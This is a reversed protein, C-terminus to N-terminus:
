TKDSDVPEFEFQLLGLEGAIWVVLRGVLSLEKRMQMVEHALGPEDTILGDVGRSLMVSMMVPNNVTWVYVKLGREHASRILSPTAANSNLALFDVDLRTLDGLSATSLLGRQWSPELEAVQNVARRNLSMIMVQDSMGTDRVVEAVRPALLLQKHQGQGGYYKLEIIIGAKGDFRQLVQRLTPIRESAFEPAFWSGVDLDALDTQTAHWARLPNGAVKMFDSDHTVIVQDDGSLQVDLEIWDSHQRVAEEFAAMTNEPAANSAGRHAIVEAHDEASVQGLVQYVLLGAVLAVSACIAWPRWGSLLLRYGQWTIPRLRELAPLTTKVVLRRYLRLMLLVFLSLSGFGLVLNFILTVSLLVMVFLSAMLWGEGTILPALQAGLFGLLVAVLWQVLWLLLIWSLLSVCILLAYGKTYQRSERLARKGPVGAFLTLPLAMSWSSLLRVALLLYAVGLGGAWWLATNWEPPQHSLYYNIDHSSLLWWYVGALLGILPVALALLRVLVHGGLLLLDRGHQVVYRIAALCSVREGRLAGYAIVSMAGVEAFWVGLSVSGVVFLGLLGVPHLLFLLIDEDSLVSEDAALLFLKLLLLIIPAILLSSLLWALLHTLLFSRWLGIFDRVSAYLESIPLLLPM